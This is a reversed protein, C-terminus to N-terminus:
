NITGTQKKKPSGFVLMLLVNNKPLKNQLRSTGSSERERERERERASERVCVCVSM